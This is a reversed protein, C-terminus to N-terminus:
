QTPDPDIHLVGKIEEVEFESDFGIGFSTIKVTAPFGKMIIPKLKNVLRRSTVSYEKEVEKGDENSVKFVICPVDKFSGDKQKIPNTTDKASTLTLIKPRGATLKVFRDSEWKKWDIEDPM